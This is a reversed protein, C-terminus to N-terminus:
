SKQDTIALRIDEIFEIPIDIYCTDNYRKSVLGKKEGLDSASYGGEVKLAMKQDLLYKYIENKDLGFKEAAVKVSIKDTPFQNYSSQQQPATNISKPKDANFYKSSFDEIINGLQKIFVPQSKAFESDFYRKAKTNEFAYNSVLTDGLKARLDQFWNYDYASGVELNTKISHEHLNLSTVVGSKENAFYKAHLAENYRIEINNFEALFLYDEKSLSKEKKDGNKGFLIRVKLRDNAKLKKLSIKINDSLNIYPSVIILEKKAKDLVKHLKDILEERNLFYGM